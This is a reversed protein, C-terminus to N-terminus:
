GVSSKCPLRGLYALNSWFRPIFDQVVEMSTMEGKVLRSGPLDDVSLLSMLRRRSCIFTFWWSDYCEIGRHVM